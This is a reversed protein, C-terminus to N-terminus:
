DFDNHFSIWFYLRKEGIVVGKLGLIPDRADNFWTSASLQIELDGPTFDVTIHHFSGFSKQWTHCLRYAMQQPWEAGMSKKPIKTRFIPHHTSLIELSPPIVM